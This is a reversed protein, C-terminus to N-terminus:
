DETENKWFKYTIDYLKNKGSNFHVVRYMKQNTTSKNLPGFKKIYPGVKIFDFNWLDLKDYITDRGSYWAVKIKPYNEKIYEALFDIYLPEADGGMLCICSIGDNDRVIADIVEHTLPMGIDDALYPSHCGECHCPCNSINICMSIHDPVESFTVKLDVYKLM